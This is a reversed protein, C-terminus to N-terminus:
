GPAPMAGIQVLLGLMDANSWREIAVGDRFKLITIGPLVYSRGTAPVNLFPGTHSGSMAFRCAIEDGQEVIDLIELRPSNSGMDVEGYRSLRAGMDVPLAAKRICTM